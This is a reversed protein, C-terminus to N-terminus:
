LLLIYDINHDEIYITQLIHEIRERKKERERESIKTCSDQKFTAKRFYTFCFNYIYQMDFYSVSNDNVTSMPFKLHSGLM